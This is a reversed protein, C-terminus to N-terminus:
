IEHYYLLKNEFTKVKQKLKKSLLMHRFHDADVHSPGGFGKTLSAAKGIMMEYIEDFYSNPIKIMPGHLHSDKKVEAPGPHKIKM